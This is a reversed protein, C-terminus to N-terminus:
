FAGCLSCLAFTRWGNTLNTPSAYYIKEEDGRFRKKYLTHGRFNYLYRNVFKSVGYRRSTWDLIKNSRFTGNEIGAMPSLGLRVIQKGESQFVEIAHKMLSHEAYQPAEPHRRKICTVYGIVENDKYLPDFYIFAQMRGDADLMYMKRVDIENRITIPRNLFRVEKRKITRTERWAESLEIAEKRVLDADCEEIKFGRRSTWNNAYRLWEKDKGNFNYSKLDLTTDVGMENVFYGMDNLVAATEHNVSVFSPRRHEGIFQELFSRKNTSGTMPDGLGFTVGWRCRFPLYGDDNHFYDLCPQVATSYAISFDGHARLHRFRTEFSISAEGSKFEKEESWQSQTANVSKKKQRQGLVHSELEVRASIDSSSM